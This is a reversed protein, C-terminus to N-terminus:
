ASSPMRSLLGDRPSPSTYLLCITSRSLRALNDEIHGIPHTDKITINNLARYDVCWQIRGNKKPAAVLGFNWPSQSPEIVKHKLWKLVQEHLDAELKPNLPRYRQRIPGKGPETRIHHTILKTTGFSGDFSFAERNEWLLAAARAVDEKTQLMPSKRLNFTEVVNLLEAETPEEETKTRTTKKRTAQLTAIKGPQHAADRAGCIATVEGYHTGKRVTIEHPQSNMVGVLASGDPRLETIANLWPHLDTKEMFEVTGTTLVGGPAMRGGETAPSRVPLWAVSAPPVTTDTVVYVKDTVQESARPRANEVLQITKGQVRLVGQSHLQDIGHKRLFPGSINFAMALGDLVVPRTKFKTQSAGMTILLPQKVRGLIHLQEGRKATGVTTHPAMPVLDGMTLGLAMMLEKSIVNKFLNGSDVMARCTVKGITIPVYNKYNQLTEPRWRSLHNIWM